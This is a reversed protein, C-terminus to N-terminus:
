RSPVSTRWLARGTSGNRSRVGREVEAGDASLLFTGLYIFPTFEGSERQRRASGQRSSALRATRNSNVKQFEQFNMQAHRTRAHRMQHKPMCSYNDMLRNSKGKSPGIM